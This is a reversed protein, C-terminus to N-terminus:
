NMEWRNYDQDYKVGAEMIINALIAFLAAIFGAFAHMGDPSSMMTGDFHGTDNLKCEKVEPSPHASLLEAQTRLPPATLTQQPRSAAASSSAATAAAGAATSNIPPIIYNLKHGLPRLADGAPLYRWFQGYIAKGRSILFGKVKCWFCAMSTPQQKRGLLKAMGPYDATVHALMCRVRKTDGTVGDNIDVGVQLIILVLANTCAWDNPMPDWFVCVSAM